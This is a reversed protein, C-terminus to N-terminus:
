LLWQAYLLAVLAAFALGPLVPFYRPLVRREAGKIAQLLEERSMLGPIDGLSKLLVWRSLWMFGSSGAFFGAITLFIGLLLM